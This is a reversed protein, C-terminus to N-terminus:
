LDAGAAEAEAEQAGRAERERRLLVVSRGLGTSRTTAAHDM